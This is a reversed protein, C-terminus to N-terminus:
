SVGYFTGKFDSAIRAGDKDFISVGFANTFIEASDVVLTYGNLGTWHYFALSVWYIGAPVTYTGEVLQWGSALAGNAIMDTYSTNNSSTVYDGTPYTDKEHFRFYFGSAAAGSCYVWAQAKIVQGPRVAMAKSGAGYNLTTSDFLMAASGDHVTSTTRSVTGTGNCIAWDTLTAEEFGPNLLTPATGVAIANPVGSRATDGIATITIDEVAVYSNVLRVVTEKTASSTGEFHEERPVADLRINQNPVTVKMTSTTLAEHKLRAWRGTGKVSLGDFYEWDTGNSSLGLYSAHTGSVDEVTAEGTWQGTLETEFDDTDEGLWTSTISDHYSAIPETYTGMPNPFKTAWSVGDETVYYTKPDGPITYAQMNTLTPTTQDYVNVFFANADSTVEITKSIANASYQKVSDIAKVGIKWTGVPIDSTQIRLADVIDILTGTDWSGALPWYRWEYRWVDIDVAPDCYGYVTGGVEFADMAPVDSPVLGKGLATVADDAWEGIAGIDSVAAVNLTYVVGEQVPGSRWIPDVPSGTAIKQGAAWMEVRYDRLYTYDVADWTLKIRSAWTGNQLQYVEEVASPNEIGPPAAPDPLSTDPTSPEAAVADSYSAEDYERAAIRYRGPEDIRVGTCRARKNTLGLAHSVDLVDGETIALAEDRLMFELELDELLFHNLRETAERVAQAHSFIGLLSVTSLRWPTTGELVGLAYAFASREAWPTVGTDTWRVEMVTPTNLVGRKRLRLSNEVIGALGDGSVVHDVARPRDPVLRRAAGRGVVWCGAYTRLAETNERHAAPNDIVLGIRRRKQGGVLEDNADATDGVSDWDLTRGRGYRTNSLYDATALAPCDSYVTLGSRPDYLKLGRLVAEVTPVGATVGQPVAVVSYAVNPMTDSFSVGHAAFAAVLTPDATQGATGMYHTATVGAPPPQNGITLSEVADIEGEGWVCLMVLKGGYVLYIPVRAGVRAPGYILRLPSGAGALTAQQEALPVAAANIAERPAPGTGPLSLYAPLPM